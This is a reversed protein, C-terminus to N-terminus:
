KTGTLLFQDVGNEGTAIEKRHHRRARALRQPELQGRDHEATDGQDDRREDRQHLILDVLQIATANTCRCEV